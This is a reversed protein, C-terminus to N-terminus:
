KIDKPIIPWGYRDFKVNENNKTLYDLAKRCKEAYGKLGDREACIIDIELDAIIGRINQKM